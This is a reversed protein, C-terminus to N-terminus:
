ANKCIHLCFADNSPLVQTYVHASICGGELCDWSTFSFVCEVIEGLFQSYKVILWIKKVKKSNWIFFIKVACLFFQVFLPLFLRRCLFFLSRWFADKFFGEREFIERRACSVFIYSFTFFMEETLILCRRGHRSVRIEWSWFRLFM